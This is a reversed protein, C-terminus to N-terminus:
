SVYMEKEALIMDLAMRYEWAMKSTPGLQEVTGRVADRTYNVFKQQNYYIHNIWDV